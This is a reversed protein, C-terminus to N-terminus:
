VNGIPSPVGKTKFSATENQVDPRIADTSAAEIPSGKASRIHDARQLEVVSIL